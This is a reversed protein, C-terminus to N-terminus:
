DAAAGTRRILGAYRKTDRAMWQVVEDGPGSAPAFGFTGLKAKVEPAELAARVSRNLTAVVQPPTGAPAMLAIWSETEIGRPGGAEELTPVDPLATSRKTDAVALVRLKGAQILPGATAYTGFAWTVEGNAVANYLQATDKFPVHLMRSGTVAEIQAAGLHGASGVGWSGYSVKGDGAKAKAILDPIGRVTSQQSVVVFFAVRYLGAVPVFDRVPDYPLKRFLGPNIALQDISGIVLEHGTAPARKGAEMAIFGNGGPRPDVVVPQGLRMTLQEGVIRSVADPGSGTAFPSVIRIPKSPFSEARTAATFAIGLVLHAVLALVYRRSM